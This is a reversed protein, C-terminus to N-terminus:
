ELSDQRHAAREVADALAGPARLRNEEDDITRNEFNIQWVHWALWCIVGIIVLIVETGQMPYIAAVDALDVAWSDIGTTSM